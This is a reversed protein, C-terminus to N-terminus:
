RQSQFSAEDEEPPRKLSQKGQKFCFYSSTTSFSFVTPQMCMHKVFCFLGCTNLVFVSYTPTYNTGYNFVLFQLVIFIIAQSRKKKSVSQCLVNIVSLNAVALEAHCGSGFYFCILCMVNSMFEYKVKTNM